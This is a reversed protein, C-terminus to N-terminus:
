VRKDRYALFQELILVAAMEDIAGSERTGRRNGLRAEAEASTFSEEEFYVPLALDHGLHQGFEKIESDLTGAEGRSRIPLGIVVAEVDNKRCIETIESLISEEALAADITGAGKPIVVGLALGIRKKGYDLALYM